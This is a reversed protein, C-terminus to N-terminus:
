TIIDKHIFHQIQEVITLGTDFMFYVAKVKCGLDLTTSSSIEDLVADWTKAANEVMISRDKYHVYIVRQQLKGFAQMFNSVWDIGPISGLIKKASSTLSASDQLDELELRHKPHLLSIQLLM